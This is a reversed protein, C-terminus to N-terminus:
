ASAAQRVSGGVGAFSAAVRHASAIAVGDGCRQELYHMGALMSGIVRVNRPGDVPRLDADVAIGAGDIPAGTLPDDGFWADRPPAAVPLGFVRERLTGDPDARIGGGALGGTALVFADAAIRLTRSAGETHIATVRDGAREVDVVPFGWQLRAGVALLRQRLAEYLRLGPVSPPVSVIEFPAGGLAVTAEAFAAAHDALGLVAPLGIRWRGAPIAGAIARLAAHRWAPDDFHRALTLANLNHLDDLAPLEVERAEIRQPGGPWRRARLNDAALGPWADRYRRFGILLLGVGRWPERLAAQAAPMVSAPRLTGIATPVQVFSDDLGGAYRLGADALRALQEDLAAPLDAALHALPHWRDTALRAVGERATRAGAPAALDLGGHTWHTAAMGKAAVFVSAGREALAIGCSLGALGGGIVAVDARAM